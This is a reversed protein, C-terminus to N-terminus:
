HRFCVSRSRPFRPRQSHSTTAPLCGHSRFVSGSSNSVLGFWDHRLGHNPPHHPGFLVTDGYGNVDFNLMGIIPDSGHNEIYKASGLLGLEEMDFWIVRVRMSAPKQRLAEAVRVLIVSSAANDIAGQSLTGDPLSHLM